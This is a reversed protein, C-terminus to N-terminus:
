NHCGPADLDMSAIIFSNYKAQPSISERTSMSEHSYPSKSEPGRTSLLESGSQCGSSILSMSIIQYLSIFSLGHFNFIVLIVIKSWFVWIGSSASGM